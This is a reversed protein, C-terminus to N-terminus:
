LYPWGVIWGVLWAIFSVLKSIWNTESKKGIVDRKLFQQVPICKASELHFFYVRRFIGLEVLHVNKIIGIKRYVHRNEIWDLILGQRKLYFYMIQIKNHVPNKFYEMTRSSNCCCKPFFRVNKTRNFRVNLSKSKILFPEFYELRSPHIIDIGGRKWFSFQIGNMFIFSQNKTSPGFSFFYYCTRAQHKLM